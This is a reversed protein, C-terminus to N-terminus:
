TNQYGGGMQQDQFSSHTLSTYACLFFETFTASWFYLLFMKKKKTSFVFSVWTIKWTYILLFWRVIISWALYLFNAKLTPLLRKGEKDPGKSLIPLEKEKNSWHSFDNFISHFRKELQGIREGHFQERKLTFSNTLRSRTWLLPFRSNVPSTLSFANKKVPTENLSSPGQCPTVGQWRSLAMSEHPMWLSPLRRLCEM